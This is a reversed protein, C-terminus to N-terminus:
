TSHENPRTGHCGVTTTSKSYVYSLVTWCRAAGGASARVDGGARKRATSGAHRKATGGARALGRGAEPEARRAGVITITQLVDALNVDGDGVPRRISSRGATNDARAEAISRASATQKM